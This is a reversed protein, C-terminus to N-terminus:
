EGRKWEEGSTDDDGAEGDEFLDLLSREQEPSLPIRPMGCAIAMSDTEGGWIVSEALGDAAGEIAEEATCGFEDAAERIARFKATSMRIVVEIENDTEATMAPRPQNTPSKPNGIGM